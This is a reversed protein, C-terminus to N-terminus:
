WIEFTMTDYGSEEAATDVADGDMIGHIYCEGIIIWHSEEKRLIFPVQSGFLICIKDGPETYMPALGLLNSCSKILRRGPLINQLLEFGNFSSSLYDEANDEGNWYPCCNRRPEGFLSNVDACITSQFTEFKTEDRIYRAGDESLALNLWQQSFTLDIDKREGIKPQSVERVTDFVFGDVMLIKNDTSTGVKM